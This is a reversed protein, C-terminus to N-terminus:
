DNEQEEAENFQLRYLEAYAGNRAILSDHSGEEVVQGAEMVVIKDANRVTSLRHAIVLTTRGESLRELAEQVIHESQADLASTAEDLLLIPTDRLLARAIAVRQRQGGSLSSGRPGAPSDLGNPLNGVFDSIHAGDMARRLEEESVDTRGLLINDRLSEDFLLADQTVVSFQGRLEALDFNRIDTDSLSVVGGNIDVLRTLVNFVTSKGAGSLGVLATTKGAEATFSTGNLVPLTGYSLSVDDFRINGLAEPLRVPDPPSKLGPEMYFLTQLRNLSVATTQWVGSVAGLRRLPEFALAMAVFFSMFEGVSKEGEIIQSGGYYLVALFGIGSMIDIMAPILAKGFSARIETQIQNDALERFRGAQYAELANLKIPTIGHFIEDLRTTMKGANQRNRLATRRVFRQVMLSPAVILPAGIFAIITWRWDIYLVVAMLSFLSMVDRGVGTIIVNSVNRIAGTDGRIRDMLAGPPNAQHFLTDLKMVHQLLETQLQFVIRSATRTILVRQCINTIARTLFIGMVVAGVWALADTNGGIFVDDFMPKMMYSMLGLMSGEVSMLIGALLIAPWYPKMWGHWLWGFLERQKSATLEASDFDTLKSM